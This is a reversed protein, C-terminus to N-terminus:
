WKTTKGYYFIKYNKKWFVPIVKGLIIPNPNVNENNYEQFKYRFNQLFTTTTYLADYNVVRQAM